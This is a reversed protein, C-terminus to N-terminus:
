FLGELFASKSTPKRRASLSVAGAVANALDDHGGPPHDISDRGSRSTRRELSMLQRALKENPPLEVRGSNLSALLEMYLASRDKESTIYAIGHKQFEDRPWRGAYKDGTVSRIGYPRLADVFERVADAPSGHRERVLDVVAHDGDRHVVAMSFGDAGGGAPDVFAQYTIGRVPGLERPKPRM